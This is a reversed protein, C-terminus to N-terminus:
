KTELIKRLRLVEEALVIICRDAFCDAPLDYAYQIAEAITPTDNM